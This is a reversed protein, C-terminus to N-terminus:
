LENESLFVDSLKIKYLCLKWKQRTNKFKFIKSAYIYITDDIIFGSSRYCNDLIIKNNTKWSILDESYATILSYTGNRLDGSVVTLLMIYGQSYTLISLHLPTYKLNQVILINSNQFDISFLDKGKVYELQLMNNQKKNVFFLFTEDKKVYTPSLMFNDNQHLKQTFLVTREWSIRDYSRLLCLNQFDPRLTELYIINYLKNETIFFDPDDNHDISPTPVLPNLHKKEEKFTIGNKSIVISPNEFKDDTNPYPTFVMIFLSTSLKIISSHVAQGSKEYTPYKIRYIRYLSLGNIKRYATHSTLFFYFNFLINYLRIKIKYFKM